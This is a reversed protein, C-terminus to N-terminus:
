EPEVPAHIHALAVTRTLMCLDAAACYRGQDTPTDTGKHLLAEETHRQSKIGM